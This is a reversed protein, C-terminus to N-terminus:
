AKSRKATGGGGDTAQAFPLSRSASATFRKWAGEREACRTSRSPRAIAAASSLIALAGGRKHEPTLEVVMIVSLVDESTLFAHSIFQYIAFDVMGKSFATLFSAITYGIITVTLLPKRGVRDAIKGMVPQAIASSLYYTSIIWSADAFTLHFVHQLRAVAVSIMSSNLPNLITGSAIALLM